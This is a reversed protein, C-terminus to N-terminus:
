SSTGEITLTYDVRTTFFFSGMAVHIYIYKTISSLDTSDIELLENNGTFNILVSSALMQGPIAIGLHEYNDAYIRIDADIGSTFTVNITNGNTTFYDAAGTM